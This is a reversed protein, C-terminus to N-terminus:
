PVDKLRGIAAEIALLDEVLHDRRATLDHKEAYRMLDVVGDQQILLLQIIWERRAQEIDKWGSM